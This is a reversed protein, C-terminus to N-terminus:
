ESVMQSEYEAVADVVKGVREGAWSRVGKWEDGEEGFARRVIRAMVALVLNVFVYAKEGDVEKVEAFIRKSKEWAEKEQERTLGAAYMADEGRKRRADKLEEPFQAWIRPMLAPLIPGFRQMVANVLDEQAKESGEAFLRPTNRYAKDLHKAIELSDSVVKNNNNNDQIFPFTNLDETRISPPLILV